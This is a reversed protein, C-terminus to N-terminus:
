YIKNKLLLLLSIVLIKKRQFYNFVLSGKKFLLNKDLTVNKNDIINYISTAYYDKLTILSIEKGEDSNNFGSTYIIKGFSIKSNNPLCHGFSILTGKYNFTIVLHDIYKFDNGIVEIQLLDGIQYM